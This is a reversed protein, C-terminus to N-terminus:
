LIRRGGYEILASYGWDKQMESAKGFADYLVTLRPGQTGAADTKGEAQPTAHALTGFGTVLLGTVFGKLLFRM